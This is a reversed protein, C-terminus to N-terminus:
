EPRGSPRSLRAFMGADATAALSGSGTTGYSSSTSSSSGSSGLLLNNSTAHMGTPTAAAACRREVEELGTRWTGARRIEDVLGHAVPQFVDVGRTGDRTLSHWREQVLPSSQSAAASDSIAKTPTPPTLTTRRVYHDTDLLFQRGSLTIRLPVPGHFTLARTDFEFPYDEPQLTDTISMTFQADHSGTPVMLDVKNEKVSRVESRTVEMERLLPVSGTDVLEFMVEVREALKDAEARLVPRYIWRRFVHSDISPGAAVEDLRAQHALDAEPTGSMPAFLSSFPTATPNPLPKLVDSVALLGNPPATIFISKVKDTAKAVWEAVREFSRQGAFSPGLGQAAAVAGDAVPAAQNQSRYLPWAVHGFRAFVDVQKTELLRTGEQQEKQIAEFPERLARLISSERVSPSMGKPVYLATRSTRELRMRESWELLEVQARHAPDEIASASPAISLSKVRAFHNTGSTLIASTPQLPSYPFLAYRLTDLNNPVSAFVATAKRAADAAFAANIHRETRELAKADIASARLKTIDTGPELFAKAQKSIAQYVEPRLTTAPATLAFEITSCTEEVAEVEAKAAAVSTASGRVILSVIGSDPNRRYAVTVGLKRVLKPITPSNPSLLLFLTRDNLPISEVTNPGIRASPITDPHTMDFDLILITHILERKSMQDLRKSTWHKPKRGPTRTRLRPDTLDVKLGDEGAFDMLQRKKFARDLASYTRDWTKQYVLRHSDPSSADPVLFRRSPRFARLDAVEPAANQKPNLIDELTIAAPKRPTPAPSSTAAVPTPTSASSASFSSSSSSASPSDPRTAAAAPGQEAMADLLEAMAEISRSEEESLLEQGDQDSTATEATTGDDKEDSEQLQVAEGAQAYTAQGRQQRWRSTAKARPAASSTIATSHSTTPRSSSRRTSATRNLCASCVSRSAYRSAPRSASALM